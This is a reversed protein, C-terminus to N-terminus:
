PSCIMPRTCRGLSHIAPGLRHGWSESAASSDRQLHVQRLRRCRLGPELARASELGRAPRTRGASHSGRAPPRAAPDALFGVTPRDEARSVLV